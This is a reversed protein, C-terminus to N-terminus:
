WDEHDALVERSLWRLRRGRGPRRASGSMSSGGFQLCGAAEAEALGVITLETPSIAGSRVLFAQAREAHARVIEGADLAHGGSRHGGVDTENTNRRIRGAV